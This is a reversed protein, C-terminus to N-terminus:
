SNKEQEYPANWTDKYWKHWYDSILRYLPALEYKLMLNHNIKSVMTGYMNNMAFIDKPKNTATNEHVRIELCLPITLTIDISYGKVCMGGKSGNELEETLSIQDGTYNNIISITEEVMTSFRKINEIEVDMMNTFQSM